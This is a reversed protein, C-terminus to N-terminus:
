LWCKAPTLARFFGSLYAWRSARIRLMMSSNSVRMGRSYKRPIAALRDRSYRSRATNKRINARCYAQLSAPKITRRRIQSHYESEKAHAKFIGPTAMCSKFSYFRRDVHTFKFLTTQVLSSEAGCIKCYLQIFCMSTSHQIMETSLRKAAVHRAFFYLLQHSVESGNIANGDVARRGVRSVVPDRPLFVDEVRGVGHDTVSITM